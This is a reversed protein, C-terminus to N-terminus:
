DILAQGPELDNVRSGSIVSGPYWDTEIGQTLQNICLETINHTLCLEISFSSYINDIYLVDMKNVFVDVFRM